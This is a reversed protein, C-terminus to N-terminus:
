GADYSLNGDSDYTGRGNSPLSEDWEFKPRFDGDGDAYLRVWRSGGIGGLQQMGKLMALFPPIWRENMKCKITFEKTPYKM